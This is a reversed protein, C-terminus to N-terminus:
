ASIVCPQLSVGLACQFVQGTTDLWTMAFGNHIDVIQMRQDVSITVLIQIELCEIGYFLKDTGKVGSAPPVPLSRDHAIMRVEVVESDVNLIM